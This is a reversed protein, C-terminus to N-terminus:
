DPQDEPPLLLPGGRVGAQRRHALGPATGPQGPAPGPQLHQRQPHQDAPQGPRRQQPRLRSPRRHDLDPDPRRAPELRGPGLLRLERPGQVAPRRHLPRHQRALGERRLRCLRLGPRRDPEGCLAVLHDVPGAQRLRRHDARRHHRQAAVAAQRPNGMRRQRQLPPRGEQQESRRGAQQRFRRHAPRGQRGAAPERHRRVQQLRGRGPQLQRHSGAEGLKPANTTISVLGASANKGFLMGQPGRLIEVRAVDYFSGLAMEPRGLVVGDLVTSVTPEISTSFTSTGVGRVSVGFSTSEFSPVVLKLQDINGINRRQLETEGVVSVAVPVDQLKEERKQATVVVETIM